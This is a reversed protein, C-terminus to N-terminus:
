KGTLNPLNLIEKQNERCHHEVRNLIHTHTHTNTILEHTMHCRGAHITANLSNYCLRKQKADYRHERTRVMMMEIEPHPNIEKHKTYFCRSPQPPRYPQASQTM